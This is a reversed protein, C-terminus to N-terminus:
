LSVCTFHTFGHVEAESVSFSVILQRLQDLRDTIKFMVPWLLVYNVKTHSIM